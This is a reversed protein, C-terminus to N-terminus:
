GALREIQLRIAASSPGTLHIVEFRTFGVEHRRVEVDAKAFVTPQVDLFSMTFNRGFTLKSPGISPSSPRRCIRSWTESAIQTLSTSSSSKPEIRRRLLSSLAVLASLDLSAM